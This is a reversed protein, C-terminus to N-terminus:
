PTPLRWLTTSEGAASVTMGTGLLAGGSEALGYVRQAGPGSLGPGRPASVQWAAGDASTWLRVDHAAPPGSTGLLAFGRSTALVNVAPGHQEGQRDQGPLEASTWTRGGDTSRAAFASSGGTTFAVGAAVATSGKVAIRVLNAHTAGAPLPLKQATWRGGDASTWVAPRAQQGPRGAPDAVAGVALYGAPGAAVDSMWRWAGGVGKLDGDSLRKWELGNPSRWVVASQDKGATASGVVVYGQPGHAVAATRLSFGRGPTFTRDRMRQWSDGNATTAVLPRGADDGVALWGAPGKAVDTLIQRGPGGLNGGARHWTAAADTSYWAAADGSTSGTAVVHGGDAALGRVSREPNVADPIKAVDIEQIQGTGGALGLYFNRDPGKLAGALVGAGNAGPAVASIFRGRGEGLDARKWSAGDTGHFLALRPGVSALVALGQESGSFRLFSTGTPNNLRSAKTWTNGDQSQLVVGAGNKPAQRLAFFRGGSFALGRSLGASGDAQPVTIQDWIRGNDTSRWFGDVVTRTKRNKKDKKVITVTGAAVLAGNGFVVRYLETASGEQVPLTLRNGDAREWAVGDASRWVVPRGGSHGVAAYGNATRAAQEVVDGKRFTDGAATHEVWSKGNESTWTTMHESSGSLALWAGATGALIKPASGAPEGGGQATVTGLSWNVGGDGSVLFRPRSLAGGYETGAAVVTSGAGRVDNFAQEVTDFRAQPGLGFLEDALRAQQAAPAPRADGPRTLVFAAGAGVAVLAVVAGGIVLLRKRGGGRGAPKNLWPESPPLGAPGAPAPGPLPVAAAPRDNGPAGVEWPQAVVPPPSFPKHGSPEAPKPPPPPAASEWPQAVVPPPSFPRHEEVTPTASPPAPAPPPPAAAWDPPPPGEPQVAWPPPPPAGPEQYPFSPPPPPAEGSDASTTRSDDEPTSM